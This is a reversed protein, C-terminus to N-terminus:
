TLIKKMEQHAENALQADDELRSRDLDLLAQAQDESSNNNKAPSGSGGGGDAQLLNSNSGAASAPLLGGDKYRNIIKFSSPRRSM